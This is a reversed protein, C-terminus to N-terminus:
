VNRLDVIWDIIMPGLVHFKIVNGRTTGISVWKMGVATSSLFVDLLIKWLNSMATIILHWVNYFYLDIWLGSFFFLCAYVYIIDLLSYLPLLYLKLMWRLTGLAGEIMFCLLPWHICFLKRMIEPNGQVFGNIRRFWLSGYSIFWQQIFFLFSIVLNEKEAKCESLM